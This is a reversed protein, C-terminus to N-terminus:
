CLYARYEAWLNQTEYPETERFLLHDKHRLRLTNETLYSSFKYIMEM